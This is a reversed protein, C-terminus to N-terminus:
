SGRVRVCVCVTHLISVLNLSEPNSCTMDSFTQGKLHTCTRTAVYAGVIPQKHGGGFISLDSDCMCTHRAVTGHTYDDVSSDGCRLVM